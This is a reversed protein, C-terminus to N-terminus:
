SYDGPIVTECGFTSKGTDCKSKDSCCRVCFRKDKPEILNVFKVFNNGVCQAGPPAGVSDYQGGEDTPSLKYADPNITGTYQVFGEGSLFHSTVIFGEPIPNVAGKVGPPTTTNCFPQADNEHGAVDGGPAPPLYTCLTNEDLTIENGVAAPAAHTFIAVSALVLFAISLKSPNIM